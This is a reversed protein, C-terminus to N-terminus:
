GRAVALAWIQKPKLPWLAKACNEFTSATTCIDDILVVIKGRVQSCTFPKNELRPNISFAGSVNKIRQARDKIEMQPSTHQKRILLNDAVPINLHKNLQDALLQAQNFGRWSLRRKHLPVPILVQFNIMKNLEIFNILLNGLPRALDKIFRYKLEYIMQRVLMNDWDSAILLGTLQSGIKTKCAICTKGNPARKGCIYCRAGRKLPIKALCDPCVYFGEKHCSLCIKPFIVDLINSIM